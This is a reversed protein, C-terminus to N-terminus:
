EQGQEPLEPPELLEVKEGPPPTSRGSEDPAKSCCGTCSFSVGLVLMWLWCVYKM